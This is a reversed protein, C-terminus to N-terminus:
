WLLCKNLIYWWVWMRKFVMNNELLKTWADLIKWLFQTSIPPIGWGSVTFYYGESEVTPRSPIGGFYLHSEIWLNPTPLIDMDLGHRGHTPKASTFGSKRQKSSKSALPNRHNCCSTIAITFRILDGSKHNFILASKKNSVTFIMLNSQLLALEQQHYHNM